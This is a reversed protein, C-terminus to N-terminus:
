QVITNCARPCPKAFDFSDQTSIDPHRQYIINCYVINGTTSRIESDEMYLRSDLPGLTRLGYQIWIGNDGTESTEVIKGWSYNYAYVATYIPHNKEKEDAKKVWNDRYTTFDDHSIFTDVNKNIESVLVCNPTECEDAVICSTMNVIALSPVTQLTDKLIYYIRVGDASTDHQKLKLLNEKSFPFVPPTKKYDPHEFKWSEKWIIATQLYINSDLDLCNETVITALEPNAITKSTDHKKKERSDEKCSIICFFFVSLFLILTKM